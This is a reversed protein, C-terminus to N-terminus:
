ALKNKQFYENEFVEKQCPRSFLYGQLINPKLEELVQLEEKEEVGECCVHMKGHAALELMNSLLRYNYSSNQIGSVFCRDIKIGDVELYKLYGLSSYGTGFDDVAIAIGAKRWESFIQNYRAFDHLQVSETVELTLAEGPVGSRELIALVQEKIDPQKLQVYSINVSIHFDPIFKRWERCQELATELVWLGVPCILKMQELLPIFDDPMVRGFVPSDYRLLAEAGFLQYSGVKMQSQYALSFGTCGHKVSDSLEELLTMASVRKRYDEESFFLLQNKGAQKAQDLADEAYQYLRQERKDGEAQFSVAGASLTCKSATKKQITEFVSQVENWDAGPLVVAFFDGNLWYIQEPKEIVEHLVDAVFALVKNGDEYGRVLNVNKLNDVGLLMLFGDEESDCFREIDEFLKARNFMGALIDAENQSAVKSVKGVLALPKGETDTQVMGRGNIRVVQGRNNRVRYDINHVTIEGREIKALCETFAPLDEQYIIKEWEEVTYYNEGTNKLNYKDTIDGIFWIRNEQLEWFYLYDGTNGGLTQLTDLYAEIRLTVVDNM